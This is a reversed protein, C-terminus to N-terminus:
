SKWGEAGTAQSDTIGLGRSLSRSGIRSTLRSLTKGASRGTFRRCVRRAPSAGLAHVGSTYRICVPPVGSCGNHM